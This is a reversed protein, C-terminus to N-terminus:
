PKSVKLMLIMPFYYGYEDKSWARLICLWGPKHLKSLVIAQVAVVVIRQEIMLERRLGNTAIRKVSL